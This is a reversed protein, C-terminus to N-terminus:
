LEEQPHYFQILCFFGSLNGFTGIKLSISLSKYVGFLLVSLAGLSFEVGFFISSELCLCVVLHLSTLSVSESHLFSFTMLAAFYCALVLM